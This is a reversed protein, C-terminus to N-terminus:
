ILKEFIVHIVEFLILVIIIWELNSSHQHLSIDKFLDLNEHVINLQEKLGKYRINIELDETIRSDIKSLEPNEYALMPSEFVYLNESIKNKLNLTSGIYKLLDKRKLSVKGHKELENTHIRTEELLKVSLSQYYFLSASQALNLLVIHIIDLNLKQVNLEGSVDDKKTINEFVKLSDSYQVIEAAYRKTLIDLIKQIRIQDMGIFALGGFDKIYFYQSHNFEFLLFGKEHKKLIGFDSDKTIETLNFRSSSFYGIGIINAQM